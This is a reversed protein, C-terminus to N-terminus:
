IDLKVSPKTDSKPRSKHVQLNNNVQSKKDEFEKVLWMHNSQAM